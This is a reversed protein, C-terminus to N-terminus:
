NYRKYIPKVYVHVGDFQM